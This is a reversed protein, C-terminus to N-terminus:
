GRAAMIEARTFGDSSILPVQYTSWEQDRSRRGDVWDPTRRSAKLARRYTKEDPFDSKRM